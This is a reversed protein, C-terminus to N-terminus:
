TDGGETITEVILDPATAGDDITFAGGVLAEADELVHCGAAAMAPGAVGEFHIDERQAHLAKILGAGLLDGSAEGAVLAVRM